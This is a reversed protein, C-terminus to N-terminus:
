KQLHKLINANAHGWHMMDEAIAFFGYPMVDKLGAENTVRAFEVECTYRLQCIRRDRSVESSTFQDRGTLFRPTIQKNLNPYCRATDSFGRDSLMAYGSPCDALRSGWLEVLAKESARGLYLATHMYALGAPTSWCIWRFASCDVKDSYCARTLLPHARPTEIKIDKGDPVAGINLLGVAKYSDPLTEDLDQPCIDLISFDKGAEGWLPAWERIYGSVAAISRGWLTGLSELPAARRFRMKTILCKEFDTMEGRRQEATPQKLWPWLVWLYAKTEEWSRFGFHHKAKDPHKAHWDDSTLAQRLDTDPGGVEHLTNEALEARLKMAALQQRMQLLEADKDLLEAELSSTCAAAEAPSLKKEAQKRMRERLRDSTPTGTMDAIRARAPGGSGSNNGMRQKKGVPQEPVRVLAEQDPRLVLARVLSLVKDRPYNPVPYYDGSGDGIKDSAFYSCGDKRAVDALEKSVRKPLHYRKLRDTEGAALVDPHWHIKALSYRKGKVRTRIKEKAWQTGHNCWLKVLDTKRGKGGKEPTPLKIWGVLHPHTPELKKMTQFCDNGCLCGYYAIATM